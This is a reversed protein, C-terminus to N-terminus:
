NLFFGFFVLCCTQSRCTGKSATIFVEETSLSLVSCWSWTISLPGGSLQARESDVSKDGNALYSAWLQFVFMYRQNVLCVLIRQNCCRPMFLSWNLFFYSIKNSDDSATAIEKSLLRLSPATCHQWHILHLKWVLWVTAFYFVFFIFIFCCFFLNSIFSASDNGDDLHSTWPQSVPGSVADEWM